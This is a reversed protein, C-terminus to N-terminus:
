LLQTFLPKSLKNKRWCIKSHTDTSSNDPLYYWSIRICSQEVLFDTVFITGVYIIQHIRNETKAVLALVDTYLLLLVLSRKTVCIAPVHCKKRNLRFSISGALLINSYVYCFHKRSLSIKSSISIDKHYKQVWFAGSYIGRRKKM